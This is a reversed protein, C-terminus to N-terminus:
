LPSGPAEPDSGTGRICPWSLHGSTSDPRAVCPIYKSRNSTPPQRSPSSQRRSPSRLRETGVSLSHPALTSGRRGPPVRMGAEAEDAPRPVAGHRAVPQELRPAPLRPATDSARAGSNRALYRGRSGAPGASPEPAACLPPLRLSAVRIGNLCQWRRLRCAAGPCRRPSHRSDLRRRSGFSAGYGRCPDLRPRQLGRDSRLRGCAAAAACGAVPEDARRLNPETAWRSLARARRRSRRARCRWLAGCHAGPMHEGAGDGPAGACRRSCGAVAARAPRDVANARAALADANAAECPSQVAVLM